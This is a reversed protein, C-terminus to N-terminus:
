ITGEQSSIAELVTYDKQKGEGKVLLTVERDILTKFRGRIICLQGYLSNETKGLNIGWNLKKNNVKVVLRIKELPIQNEREVIYTNGEELIKVKHAGASPNFWELNELKQPQALEEPKKWQHTEM